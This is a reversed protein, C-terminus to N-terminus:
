NKLNKKVEKIEEKLGNVEGTLKHVEMTLGDLKAGQVRQQEMIANLMVKIEDM